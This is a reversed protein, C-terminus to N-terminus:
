TLVAWRAHWEGDLWGAARVAALMGRIDAYDADTMSVFREVQAADLVHRSVPDGALDLLADRVLAREEGTLRTTSVVVPQITSPGITEIVRLRGRLAPDARLAIALVQSDIAAADAAGDVVLRISTDHFGSEILEGFFGPDLGSAVLHHWVTMFGSHSFPENFAWRAGQLDAFRRYRSGAGVIVDSFYIPRGGYRDGRLAPAAVVDMQIRGAEAFLLYPISCVFCVDDIDAACREYSTAVHFDVSRGLREGIREAAHRYLPLVGPALHTAVSVPRRGVM